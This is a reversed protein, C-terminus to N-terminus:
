LSSSSLDADDGSGGPEGDRGYSRVEFPEGRSGPILYVYPNGWPDLPVDPRDLYGGEPFRRPRPEIASPEVLAQLGQRQTPYRGNDMHYLQLALRFQELQARAAAM